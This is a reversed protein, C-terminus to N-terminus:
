RPAESAQLLAITKPDDGDCYQELARRFLPDDPAVTAFLTMSSRFKLDDPSGFIQSLTRGEAQLVLRTCQRLRPGLVPHQLYALAEERSAIGFHEATASRGLGKLQPFVFWMWHSAKAGAALEACVRRYVPEQAEVFRQLDTGAMARHKGV